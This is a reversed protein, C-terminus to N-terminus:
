RANRQGGEKSPSFPWKAALQVALWQRRQHPDPIRAQAQQRLGHMEDVLAAWSEPFLSELYRRIAQALIPAQGSTSIALVLDGRRIQSVALCDSLAPTDVVNMWVNHTRAWIAVTRNFEQDASAAIAMVAGKLDDVTPPRPHWTVDAHSTWPMLDPSPMPAFLLVRAGAAVLGAIKAGVLPGEGIVVVPRCSVNLMVPYYGM